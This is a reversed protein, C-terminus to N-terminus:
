EEIIRKVMIFRRKYNPRALSDYKVYPSAQASSAHIFKVPEGPASVVIGIHGVETSNPDTGRFFVLDGAKAEQTSIKQGLEAIHRSSSPIQIGHKKFVYSVFGSCDFGLSDKGAVKYPTNLLTTAYAVVQDGLTLPIPTGDDNQDTDSSAEVTIEERSSHNCSGCTMNLGLLIAVIWIPKYIYQTKEMSIEM